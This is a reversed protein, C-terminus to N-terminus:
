EGKYHAGTLEGGLIILRGCAACHGEDTSRIEGDTLEDIVGVQADEACDFDCVLVRKTGFGFSAYPEGELPYQM